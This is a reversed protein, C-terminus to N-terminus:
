VYKVVVEKGSVKILVNYIDKFTQGKPRWDFVYTAAEFQLSDTKASAFTEKLNLSDSIFVCSKNLYEKYREISEVAEVIDIEEVVFELMEIDVLSCCEEEILNLISDYTGCRTLKSALDTRRVKVLTKLIGVDPSQKATAAQVKCVMRAYSKRILETQKTISKGVPIEVLNTPTIAGSSASDHKEDSLLEKVVENNYNKLIRDEEYKFQPITYLISAFIQLAKRDEKIAEELASILANSRAYGDMSEQMSSALDKSIVQKEQLEAVIDSFDESLNMSRCQNEFIALFPRKERDLDTAADFFGLSRRADSLSDWTAGGREDVDDARHLWKSLCDLLCESATSNNWRIVDLTGKRLGLRSGLDCWRDLQFRCRKVLLDHIDIDYRKLEILEAAQSLIKEEHEALSKKLGSESELLRKNEMFVASLQKKRAQLENKLDSEPIELSEIQEETEMSLSEENISFQLKEELTKMEREKNRDYLTYHGITLQILDVEKLLTPLNAQAELFLANMLYLPAYCIILISNAKQITQVIVENALDDFARKMLRRIDELLHDSPEWDLLFQIKECTLSSNSALSLKKNLTFALKIEKSFKEIEKIYQSALSIGDELDYRNAITEIAAVNVINCKKEIIKFLEDFSQTQQLQSKLEPWYQELFRKLEELKTNTSLIPKMKDIFACFKGSMAEFSYEHAARSVRVEKEQLQPQTSTVDSENSQISECNSYDELIERGIAVTGDFTQLADALVRLKKQNEAVTVCISRFPEDVLLNGGRRIKSETKKSIVGESRLLMLLKPPLAVWTFKSRHCLLIQSAPNVLIKHIKEAAVIAISKVAVELLQPLPNEFKLWLSLCELLCQHPDRPYGDKISNLQPQLINLSLGLDYWKTEDFNTDKLIDRILLLHKIRDIISDPLYYTITALSYGESSCLFGAWSGGGSLPVLCGQQSYWIDAVM